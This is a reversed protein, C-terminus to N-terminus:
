STVIANIPWNHPVDFTNDGTWVWSALLDDLRWKEEYVSSIWAGVANGMQMIQSANMSHSINEADRFMFTTNPNGITIAVMGKLAQGSINVIDEVNRTQITGVLGDPFTYAVGNFQVQMRLSALQNSYERRKSEQQSELWALKEDESAFRDMVEWVQNWSGDQNQTPVGEQCVQLATYIPKPSENVLDAQFKKIANQTMLVPFSVNPYMERFQSESLIEGTSRRRIKM